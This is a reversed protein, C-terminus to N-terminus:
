SQRRLDQFSFCYRLHFKAPDMAPGQPLYLLRPLPVIAIRDGMSAPAPLEYEFYSLLFKCPAFTM